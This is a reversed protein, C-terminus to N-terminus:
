PRWDRFRVHAGEVRRREREGLRDVIWQFWEYVSERGQEKRLRLVWDGLRAWFGITADGMLDDVIELPVVRRFVLVGVAELTTGVLVAANEYDEGHARLDDATCGEPISWVLRLARNFEPNRFSHVLEVAAVERRQRQFVRLQAIGLAVGAAVAAPAIIQAIQVIRELNVRPGIGM